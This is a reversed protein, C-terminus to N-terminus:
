KQLCRLLPEVYGLLKSEIEETSRAVGIITHLTTRVDIRPVNKTTGKKTLLVKPRELCAAAAANIRAFIGDLEGERPTARFLFHNKADDPSIFVEIALSSDNIPYLYLENISGPDAEWGLRHAATLTRDWLKAFNESNRRKEERDPSSMDGIAPHPPTFDLREFEERLWKTEDHSDTALIPYFDRWLFHPRVPPRVYKPHNIVTADPAKWSSRIYVLGDIHLDLYRQLQPRDDQEPGPTESATLKHECVIKRGDSLTLLM